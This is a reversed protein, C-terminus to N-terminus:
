LLVQVVLERKVKRHLRAGSALVAHAFGVRDAPCAEIEPAKMDKDFAIKMALIVVDPGVHFTLIQTVRNPRIIQRRQRIPQPHPEIDRRREFVHLAARDHMAGRAHKRLAM